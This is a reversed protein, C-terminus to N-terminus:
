WWPGWPYPAFFPDYAYVMRTRVVKPWLYIVDAAVKPQRYDYDGVRRNEYGVVHGTVTISRGVKFVQPEYYGQRCALFRGQSRDLDLRPRSEENLPRAVLQFCTQEAGTEVAAITGGWRVAQGTADQAANPAIGAFQGQLPKPVSACGVAALALALTAARVLAPHHCRNSPISPM